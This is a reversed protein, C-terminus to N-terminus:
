IKNASSLGAANCLISDIRFNSNEKKEIDESKLQNNRKKKHFLYFKLSARENM